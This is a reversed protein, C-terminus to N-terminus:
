MGTRKEWETLSSLYYPYDQEEVFVDQRNHGRQVIHHPCNPVVVSAKGPM